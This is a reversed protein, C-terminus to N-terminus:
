PVTVLVLANVVDAGVMVRRRDMRDALAGAV